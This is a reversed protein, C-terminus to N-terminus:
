DRIGLRSDRIAVTAVWLAAAALLDMAVKLLWSGVPHHPLLFGAMFIARLTALAAAAAMWIWLFSYRRYWSTPLLFPACVVLTLLYMVPSHAAVPGPAFPGTIAGVAVGVAFAGAALAAPARLLAM